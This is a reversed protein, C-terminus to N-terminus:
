ESLAGADGEGPAKKKSKKGALKLKLLELGNQFRLGIATSVKQEDSKFSELIALAAECDGYLVTNEVSRSTSGMDKSQQYLEKVVNEIEEGIGPLGKFLAKNIHRELDQGERGIEELEELMRRRKSELDKMYARFAGITMTQDMDSLRVDVSVEAFKDTIEQGKERLEDRRLMKAHTEADLILMAANLSPLQKILTVVRQKVIADLDAQSRDYTKRWLDVDYRGYNTQIADEGAFQLCEEVLKNYRPVGLFQKEKARSALEKATNRLIYMSANARQKFLGVYDKKKDDTWLAMAAASDGVMLSFPNTTNDAVTMTEPVTSTDTAETM